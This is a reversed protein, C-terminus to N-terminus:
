LHQQLPLPAEMVAVCPSTLTSLSFSSAANPVDLSVTLVLVDAYSKVVAAAAVPTETATAAAVADPPVEVAAASPYNSALFFFLLFFSYVGDGGFSRTVNGDSFALLGIFNEGFLDVLVAICFFCLLM